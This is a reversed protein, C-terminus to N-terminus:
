FNSIKNRMIQKKYFDKLFCNFVYSLARQHNLTHKILDIYYEEIYVVKKEYGIEAGFKNYEKTNDKIFVKLDDLNEKLYLNFYVNIDNHLNKSNMNNNKLIYFKLYELLHKNVKLKRNVLM